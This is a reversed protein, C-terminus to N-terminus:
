EWEAELGLLAAEREARGAGRSKLEALLTARERERERLDAALRKQQTPTLMRRTAAEAYLRIARKKRLYGAYDSYRLHAIAALNLLRQRQIEYMAKEQNADLQFHFVREETAEQVAQPSVAPEQAIAGGFLSTWGLFSVLLLKRISM